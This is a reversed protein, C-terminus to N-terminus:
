TNSIMEPKLTLQPFDLTAPTLTSLICDNTSMSPHLILDHSRLYRPRGNPPCGGKLEKYSKIISLTSLLSVDQFFVYMKKPPMIVRM